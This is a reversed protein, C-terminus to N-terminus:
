CVGLPFFPVWIPERVWFLVHNRAGGQAATKTLATQFLPGPVFREKRGLGHCCSMKLYFLDVARFLEKWLFQGPHLGVM